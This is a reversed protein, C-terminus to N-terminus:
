RGFRSGAPYQGFADPFCTTATPAPGAFRPTPAANKANKGPGSSVALLSFSSSQKPSSRERVLCKTM